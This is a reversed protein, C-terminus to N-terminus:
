VYKVEAIFYHPTELGSDKIEYHVEESELTYKECNDEWYMALKLRNNSVCVLDVWEHYDYHAFFLGYLKM